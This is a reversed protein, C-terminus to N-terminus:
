LRENLLCFKVSKTKVSKKERMKDFKVKSESLSDPEAKKQKGKEAVYYISDVFGRKIPLQSIAFVWKLVM